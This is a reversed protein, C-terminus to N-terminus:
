SGNRARMLVDRLEEPMRQPKFDRGIVVQVTAADVCHLGDARDIAYEFSWSSRRVEGVRVKIDFEDDFRLPARYRVHAEGITYDIGRDTLDRRQEIGLHRLYAVRGVEAYILYNAYYVVQQTDTEGYRVRQRHAFPFAEM